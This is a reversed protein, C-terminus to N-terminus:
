ALKAVYLAEDVDVRAQVEADDPSADRLVLQIRQGRSSGAVVVVARRGLLVAGRGCVIRAGGPFRILGALLGKGLLRLRAAESAAGASAVVCVRVSRARRLSGAPGRRRALRAGVAALRRRKFALRRVRIGAAAVLRIVLIGRTRLEDAPFLNKLRARREELRIREEFTERCLRAM